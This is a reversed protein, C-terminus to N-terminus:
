QPGRLRLNRHDHAPQALVGPGHASSEAAGRWASRRRPRWVYLGGMALFILVLAGSGAVLVGWSVGFSLKHIRQTFGILGYRHQADVMPVTCPDSLVQEWDRFRMKASEGGPALRIFSVAGRHAQQAAGLMADVSPPETCSTPARYQPYISEEIHPRMSLIAGTVAFVVCLLGITVAIWRHLFATARSVSM